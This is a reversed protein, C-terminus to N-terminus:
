ALADRKLTIRTTDFINEEHRLIMRKVVNPQDAVEAVCFM